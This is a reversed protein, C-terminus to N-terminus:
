VQVGEFLCIDNDARVGRGARYLYGMSRRGRGVESGHFLGARYQQSFFDCSIHFANQQGGARFFYGYRSQLAYSVANETCDSYAPVHFSGCCGAFREFRCFIHARHFDHNQNKRIGKRRFIKFCASCLRRKRRFVCAYTHKSDRQLRRDRDIGDSRCLTGCHYHGGFCVAASFRRQRVFAIYIEFASELAKRCDFRHEDAFRLM